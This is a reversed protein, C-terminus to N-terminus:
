VPGRAGPKWPRVRNHVTVTSGELLLSLEGTTVTKAGPQQAFALLGKLRGGDFRRSVLYLGYGDGVLARVQSRDKKIFVVCDGLYPEAGLRMAEGLLGDLGKRFDV